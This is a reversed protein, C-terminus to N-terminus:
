QLTFSELGITLKRDDGNGYGIAQPSTLNKYVFEVILYSQNNSKQPVEIFLSNGSPHSIAVQKQFYSNIYIDVLAQPHTPAVLARVNFKITSFKENTIPVVIRSRDGLSWYGWNGGQVWGNLLFQSNQKDSFLIEKGVKALPKWQL